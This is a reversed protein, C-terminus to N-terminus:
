FRFDPSDPPPHPLHKEAESTEFDGSNMRTNAIKATICLVFKKSAIKRTRFGDSLGLLLGLRRVPKQDIGM